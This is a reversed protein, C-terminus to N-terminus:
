PLQQARHQTGDDLIGDLFWGAFPELDKDTISPSPEWDFKTEYPWLQQVPFPHMTATDALGAISSGIMQILVPGFLVTAGWVDGELEGVSIAGGYKYAYATCVAGSYAGVWMRMDAPAEVHAFLHQYASEPFPTDTRSEAAVAMMATKLAWAALDRQLSADLPTVQRDLAAEFFTKLRGELASMWGNNCNGCVAGVTLTFQSQPWSRSKDDQGDQVVHLWHDVPGVASMHRAAWNPWVHEKTTEAAGCFVCTRAM